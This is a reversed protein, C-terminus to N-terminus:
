STTKRAWCTKLPPFRRVYSFPSCRCCCLLLFLFPFSFTVTFTGIEESTKDSDWDYVIIKLFDNLDPGVLNQVGITFPKWEPDLNKMITESKYVEDGPASPEKKKM